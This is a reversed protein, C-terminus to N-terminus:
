IDEVNEHDHGDEIDDVCSDDIVVLVDEVADEPVGYEAYDKHENSNGLHDDYLESSFGELNGLATQVSVM